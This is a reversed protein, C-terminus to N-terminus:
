QQCEQSSHLGSALLLRRNNSASKPSHLGSALLITGGGSVFEACRAEVLEIFLESLALSKSRVADMQVGDWADLAVDLAVLSLVQPRAMHCRHM